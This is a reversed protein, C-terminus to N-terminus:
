RSDLIFLFLFESSSIFNNNDLHFRWEHGFNHGFITGNTWCRMLGPRYIHWFYYVRQSKNSWNEPSSPKVFQNVLLTQHRDCSIVARDNILNLHFASFSKFDCFSPSSLCFVVTFSSDSLFRHCFIEQHACVKTIFKVKFEEIRSLFPSTRRLHIVRQTQTSINFESWLKGSSVFEGWLVCIKGHWENTDMGRIKGNATIKCAEHHYRSSM